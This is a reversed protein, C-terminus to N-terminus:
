LGNFEDESMITTGDKQAKQAKKSDPKACILITTDKKLKEVWSYGKSEIVAAFDKKKMGSPLKGSICVTGNEAVEKVEPLVIDFVNLLKCLLWHRNEWSDRAKSNNVEDATFTSHDKLYFNFNYDMILNTTNNNIYYKELEESLTKGFAEISCISVLDHLSMKKERMKDGCKNVFDIQHETGLGCREYVFHGLENIFECSIYKLLSDLAGVTSYYEMIREVMEDSFGKPAFHRILKEAAGDLISPCEPNSCYYNAGNKNIHSEDCGYSCEPYSKEGL